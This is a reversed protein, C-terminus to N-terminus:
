EDTLLIRLAKQARTVNAGASCKSFWYYAEEDSMMQIGQGIAEIIDRTQQQAVPHQSLTPRDKPLCIIAYRGAKAIHSRSYGARKRESRSRLRAL